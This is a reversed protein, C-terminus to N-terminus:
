LGTLKSADLLVVIAVVLETGLRGSNGNGMDFWLSRDGKTCNEVSGM